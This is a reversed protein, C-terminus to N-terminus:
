DAFGFKITFQTRALVLVYVRYAAAERMIASIENLTAGSDFRDDFVLVKTSAFQLPKALKYTDLVNLQKNEKNRLDKQPKTLRIRAFVEKEWPIKTKEEIREAMFSVPDFSRSKFSPPVTLLLDASKLLVQNNIFDSALDALLMGAHRDQEYKFRHLLHGM